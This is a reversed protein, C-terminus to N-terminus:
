HYVNVAGLYRVPMVSVWHKRTDPQYIFFWFATMLITWDSGKAGVLTLVHYNLFIIIALLLVFSSQIVQFPWGFGLFDQLTGSKQELTTHRTCFQVTTLRTWMFGREAYNGRLSRQSPASCTVRTDGHQSCSDCSFLLLLKRPGLQLRLLRRLEQIFYILLPSNQLFGGWAEWINKRRHDPFFYLNTFSTM